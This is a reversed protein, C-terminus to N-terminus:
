ELLNIAQSQMEDAVKLLKINAAFASKAALVSVAADSLNATDVPTGDGSNAEISAVGAATISSFVPRSCTCTTQFRGGAQELQAQAQNLGQLAIASIDM